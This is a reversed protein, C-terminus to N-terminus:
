ACKVYDSPVLVAAHSHRHNKLREKLEIWHGSQADLTLLSTKIGLEGFFDLGGVIIFSDDYQVVAASRYEGYEENSPLPEGFNWELFELDFM